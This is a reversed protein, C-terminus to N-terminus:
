VHNNGGEYDTEILERLYKSVNYLKGTDSSKKIIRKMMKEKTKTPIRFAVIDDQNNKKM